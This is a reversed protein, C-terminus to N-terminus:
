IIFPILYFPHPDNQVRSTFGVQIKNMADLAEKTKPGPRNPTVLKIGDYEDPLIHTPKKAETLALAYSRKTAIM